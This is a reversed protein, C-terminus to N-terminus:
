KNEKKKRSIVFVVGALLLIVIGGVTYMTTGAGGTHPIAANAFKVNVYYTNEDSASPILVIVPSESKVYGEPASNEYLLYIGADLGDIWPQKMCCNM